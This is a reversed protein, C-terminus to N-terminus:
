GGKVIRWHAVKSRIERVLKRGGAVQDRHDRLWYQVKSLDKCGAAALVAAAHLQKGFTLMSSLAEAMLPEAMLPELAAFANELTGSEDDTEDAQGAVPDAMGLWLLPDRVLRSWQEFSEMPKAVSPRGAFAYGRAITLVDVVLQGRKQLVYNKLDPIRFTRGRATEANADLRASLSRRGLDGAPTINNGTMAVTSRNPAKRTESVGLVRDSYNASTAFACLFPARVKHGTPVNDLLLSTDGALLTAFLVKRLEESESYPSNAPMAGTAILSPMAALLTKGTAAIPASYVFVPSTDFSSRLVTTIVHALFTSKAEPTAYPFENFPEFLRGLAALADDRTPAPPIHPFAITPAYYVGTQLDYGPTLTVSMDSRLVPVASIALLPNFTTWSKQDGINDALEKPCDRREWEGKRGDFKWFQARRMLERRMWASTAPVYVAQESARSVNSDDIEAARGIRVIRWGHAYVSDALLQEARDAYRDFQGGTLEIVERPDNETPTPSERKEANAAVKQERSQYWSHRGACARLVTSRLYDPRDHKDRQLGSARLLRAIQECNGGSYYALLNCLALDAASGDHSQGATQPPYARGLAGPDGAWLKAFTIRDNFIAKPTAQRKATAILEADDPIGHGPVATTTWEGDAAEDERPPFHEAILAGLAATHDTAMSGNGFPTGLAIFRGGSYLEARLAACRTGHLPRDGNYSGIVHLGRGSVSVEAYAGPFRALLPAVYPAWTDGDHAGDLDLAFLPPAVIVGVGFGLLASQTRADAETLWNAPDTSDVPRGEVDVPVKDSKGNERTVIKYLVYGPNM